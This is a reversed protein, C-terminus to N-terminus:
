GGDGPYSIFKGSPTKDEETGLTERLEATNALPADFTHTTGDTSQYKYNGAPKGDARRRCIPCVGNGDLIIGAGGKKCFKCREIGPEGPATDIWAGESALPIWEGDYYVALIDRITLRIVYLTMGKWNLQRVSYANVKVTRGITGRISM